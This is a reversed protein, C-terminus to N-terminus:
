EIGEQHAHTHEEQRTDDQHEGESTESAEDDSSESSESPAAETKATMWRRADRALSFFGVVGTIAIMGFVIVKGFTLWTDLQTGTGDGGRQWITKPLPTPEISTLHIGRARAAERLRFLRTQWSEFTSWEVTYLAVPSARIKNLFDTWGALAPSIDITIFDADANSAIIDKEFSIWDLGLQELAARRDGPGHFILGAVRTPQMSALHGLGYSAERASSAFRQHVDYADALRNTVPSALSWAVERGVAVAGLAAITRATSM